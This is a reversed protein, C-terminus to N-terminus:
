HLREVDMRVYVHLREMSWRKTDEVLWSCWTLVLVVHHEEGVRSETTASQGVKIKSIGEDVTVRHTEM